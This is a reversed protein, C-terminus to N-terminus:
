ADTSQRVSRAPVREGTPTILDGDYDAGAVLEVEVADDARGQGELHFDIAERAEAALGELTDGVVLIVPLHPVYACYNGPAREYVVTYRM